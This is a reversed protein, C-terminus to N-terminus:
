YNISSNTDCRERVFPEALYGYSEEYGFIFNYDPSFDRIEKAIFKFGTLVEKILVNNAKAISRGLESTVISQIM